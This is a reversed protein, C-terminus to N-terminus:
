PRLGDVPVEAGPVATPTPTARIVVNLTSPTLSELRFGAPIQPQLPVAYQGPGRGALDLTVRFDRATLNQLTPAPGTISLEVTGPPEALLLGPGLGVVAPVVQLAQTTPLPSVRLTVSVPRPQLLTVGNPTRLVAQKVSTTSLGAVDIPETEVFNVAALRDPDGVITTSPPNIELPELFYGQALKGRVV